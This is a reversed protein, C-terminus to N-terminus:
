ETIFSDLNGALRDINGGTAATPSATGINENDSNALIWLVWGCVPAVWVTNVWESQLSMVATAIAIIVLGLVLMRLSKGTKDPLVLEVAAAASIGMAYTALNERVADLEGIQLWAGLGGIGIVVFVFYLCRSPDAISSMRDRVDAGLKRWRPWWRNM